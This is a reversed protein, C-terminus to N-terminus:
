REREERRRAFAAALSSFRAGRVICEPCRTPLPLDEKALRGLEEDSIEFDVDCARCRRKLSM